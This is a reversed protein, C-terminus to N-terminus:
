LGAAASTSHQHGVAPEGPVGRCSASLLLLLLLMLSLDFCFAGAACLLLVPVWCLEEQVSCFQEPAGWCCACVAADCCWGSV